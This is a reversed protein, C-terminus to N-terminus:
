SKNQTKVVWYFWNLGTETHRQNQGAEDDVDVHESRSGDSNIEQKRLFQLFMKVSECCVFGAAVFLCCLFSCNWNWVSLEVTYFMM